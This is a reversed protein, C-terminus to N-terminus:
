SLFLYVYADSSTRWPLTFNVRTGKRCARPSYDVAPNKNYSAKVQACKGDADTDDVHGDVRVYPYSFCERYMAHGGRIDIPKYATCSISAQASAPLAFALALTLATLPFALTGLLKPSLLRTQVKYLM